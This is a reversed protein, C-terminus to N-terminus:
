TLATTIATHCRAFHSMLCAGHVHARSRLKGEMLRTLNEKSGAILTYKETATLIFSQMTNTRSMSKLCARQGM